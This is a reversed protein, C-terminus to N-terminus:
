LSGCNDGIKLVSSIFCVAAGKIYLFLNIFASIHVGYNLFLRLKIYQYVVTVFLYATYQINKSFEEWVYQQRDYYYFLYGKTRFYKYYKNFKRTTVV